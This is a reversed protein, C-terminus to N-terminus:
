LGIEVRSRLGYKSLFFFVYLQYLYVEVYGMIYMYSFFCNRNRKPVLHLTGLIQFYFLFIILSTM